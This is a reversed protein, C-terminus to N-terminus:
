TDSLTGELRGALGSLKRSYARTSQSKVLMDAAAEQLMVSQDLATRSATDIRGILSDVQAEYPTTAKTPVISNILATVLVLIRALM